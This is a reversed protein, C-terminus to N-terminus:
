VGPDPTLARLTVFRAEQERPAQGWTVVLELRYLQVPALAPDLPSDAPSEVEFPTVSLEWRYADGFEGSSGGEELREGIGVSDLLSQAYLAAETRQEAQRANRMAGTAIQMAIGLGIALVAFSVVIEILTFGRARRGAVPSQGLRLSYSSAGSASMARTVARAPTSNM